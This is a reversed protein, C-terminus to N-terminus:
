SEHKFGNFDRLANEYASCATELRADAHRLLTTRYPNGPDLGSCMYRVDEHSALAERYENGAVMLAKIVEAFSRAEQGVIAEDCDPCIPVDNVLLDTEGGCVSCSPM